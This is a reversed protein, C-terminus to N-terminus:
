SMVCLVHVMRIDLFCWLCSAAWFLVILKKRIMPVFRFLTSLSPFWFLGPLFPWHCCILTLRSTLVILVDRFNGPRLWFSLHFHAPHTRQPRLDSTVSTGNINKIQLSMGLHHQVGDGPTNRGILLVIEGLDSSQKTTSQNEFKTHMSNCFNIYFTLCYQLVNCTAHNPTSKSPM